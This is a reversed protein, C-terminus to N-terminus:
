EADEEEPQEVLGLAGSNAIWDKVRQPSGWCDAPASTHFFRVYAPLLDVNTSDAREVASRLNNEVVATLFHGPPIGHLVYREVARRMHDPLRTLASRWQPFVDAYTKLHIM